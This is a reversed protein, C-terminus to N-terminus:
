GNCSSPPLGVINTSTYCINSFVNGSGMGPEVPSFPQDAGGACINYYFGNGGSAISLGSNATFSDNTITNNHAGNILHLGGQLDTYYGSNVKQGNFTFCINGTGNSTTNEITDNYSGSGDLVYGGTDNADASAQNIVSDHTNVFWAGFGDDYTLDNCPTNSPPCDSGTGVSVYSSNLAYIGDGVHPSCLSCTAKLKANNVAVHDSGNIYVGTGNGKNYDVNDISINSSNDLEIGIGLDNGSTPSNSNGTITTANHINVLWITPDTTNTDNYTSSIGFIKFYKTISPGSKTSTSAVKVSWGSTGGSPASISWPGIVYPNAATGNGATVCGCTTFDADKTITIAAHASAGALATGPAAAACAGVALLM